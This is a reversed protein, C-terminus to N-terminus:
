LLPGLMASCVGTLGQLDKTAVHTSPLKRSFDIRVKGNSIPKRGPFFVGGGIKASTAISLQYIKKNSHGWILGWFCVIGICFVIWFVDPVLRSAMFILRRLFATM